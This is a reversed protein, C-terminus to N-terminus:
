QVHLLQLLRGMTEEGRQQRVYEHSSLLICIYGESQSTYGSNEHWIEKLIIIEWWSIPLMKKIYFLNRTKTRSALQQFYLEDNDGRYM